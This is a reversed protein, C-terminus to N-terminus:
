FPSSDYWYGEGCYLTIRHQRTLSLVGGYRPLLGGLGAAWGASGCMAWCPATDACWLGWAPSWLFSRRYGPLKQGAEDGWICNWNRRCSPVEWSVVSLLEALTISAKFTRRVCILFNYKNLMGEPGEFSVLSITCVYITM